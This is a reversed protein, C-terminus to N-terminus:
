DAIEHTNRAAILGGICGVAMGGALLAACMPISLFVVSSPDIAGAAAPMQRARVTAFVAWLVGVAVVAGVGGQILGEVVFPGRIYALPAGVLQMIHIEERRALLALRVV